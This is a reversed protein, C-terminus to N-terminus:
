TKVLVGVSRQGCRFAGCGPPYQTGSFEPERTTITKTPSIKLNWLDRWRQYGYHAGARLGVVVEAEDPLYERWDVEDLYVILATGNNVERCMADLDAAYDEEILTSVPNFKRPFSFSERGTKINIVDFGNSYIRTGMPFEDLKQITHSKNWFVANFGMGNTQMRDVSQITVPINMRSIFVIGVLFIPMM